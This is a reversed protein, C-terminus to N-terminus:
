AFLAISPKKDRSNHTAHVMSADFVLIEGPGVNVELPMLNEPFMLNGRLVKLSAYWQTTRDFTRSYAAGPIGLVELGPNLPFDPLAKTKDKLQLEKYKQAALVVNPQTYFLFIRHGHLQVTATFTGTGEPYHDLHFEAGNSNSRLWYRRLNWVNVQAVSTIGLKLPFLLSYDDSFENVRIEYIHGNPSDLDRDARLQKVSCGTPKFSERAKKFLNQVSKYQFRLNASDESTAPLVKFLKWDPNSDFVLKPDPCSAFSFTKFLPPSAKLRTPSKTGPKPTSTKELPLEPTFDESEDGPVVSCSSRLGFSAYTKSTFPICLVHTALLLVLRM